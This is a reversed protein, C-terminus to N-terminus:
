RATDPAAAPWSNEDVCLAVPMRKAWGETQLMPEDYFREVHGVCLIAVPKAGAPMGLLRQVEGVDFLSV